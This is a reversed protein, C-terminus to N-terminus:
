SISSLQLNIPRKTVFQYAINDGNGIQKVTQPLRSGCDPVKQCVSVNGSRKALLSKQACQGLIVTASFM